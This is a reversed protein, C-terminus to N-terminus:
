RCGGGTEVHQLASIEFLGPALGHGLFPLAVRPIALVTGGLDLGVLPRASGVAGPLIGLVRPGGAGPPLLRDGNIM